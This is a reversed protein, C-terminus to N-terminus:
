NQLVGERPVYQSFRKLQPHKTFLAVQMKLEAKESRVKRELIRREWYLPKLQENIGLAKFDNDDISKQLESIQKNLAMLDRENQTM